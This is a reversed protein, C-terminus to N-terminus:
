RLLTVNGQYHEAAGNKMVADIVYVYVGTPQEKDNFRGDWGRGDIRTTEFIVQGWRNFISMKFGTVGRSLLQRPLFYDNVGDGNPTFSNPIDIYCDKFVEISDSTECGDLSVKATYIGPHRANIYASTEGTNWLWSANPNLQNIYDGLVIAQGNPCMVTDPGLNIQAFPKIFIDKTFNADPCNRYTANLSVTYIGASDYAHITNTVNPTFNGDGFLWLTSTNGTQLYDGLFTIGQGECLVTDSTYFNVTPITDILIDMYATDRCLIDDTIVMMVTYYGPNVYTYVPNTQISTDGNGFDWYYTPTTGASTNTFTLMQNACASDDDVEFSAILPHLTNVEHEISDICFGNNVILKVNYVGQIPYIHTPNEVTDGTGDKFDWINFTNQISNNTFVVTDESCGKHIDFTFNAVVPPDDLTIPGVLNSFCLGKYVLISDYVGESLGLISITGTGPGGTGAANTTFPTQQVGNKRYRVTYLEGPDLLYLSFYGDTGGCTTPNFQSIPMDPNSPDPNINTTTPGGGITVYVTDRLTDGCKTTEAVYFTNTTPQISVTNGTGVLTTGNAYWNITSGPTPVPAYPIATVTYNTSSTPTFRHASHFASWQTPYNRGPVAFAITGTADQIGEIAFGGNWTPCNPANTIHVEIENTTEYLVIQFSTRLTTCSFMPVDCFSVVYKRNPATGITAGEITGGPTACGPCIDAYFGMISNLVNNNGPIAQGIAWPSGQGAQGTNFKIYGNQSIICTTYNNGFYNFTFGINQIASYSDDTSPFGTIPVLVGTGTSGTLTAPVNPCITTDPTIIIQAKLPSLGFCFALFTCISFCSRLSLRM